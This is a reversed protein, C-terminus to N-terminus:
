DNLRYFEVRCVDVGHSGMFERLEAENFFERKDGDHIALMMEDRYKNSVSQRFSPFTYPKGDKADYLLMTDKFVDNNVINASLVKVLKYNKAM